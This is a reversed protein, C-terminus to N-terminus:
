GRPHAATQQRDDDQDQSPMAPQPEMPLEIQMTTGKGGPGALARIQGGHAEVIGRCISLGLGTGAVRRDGAMVRYFKDFVKEREKEPIGVGEDAIEVLVREEARRVHVAIKSSPPSYKAANDLLNVLVQQMLVFDMRLLPLNPQIHTELQHNRILGHVRALSSGLVDELEMWSRNLTLRGAELQTIDLLNSVFRNLREAEEQITTLLERRAEPGYDEEYSLM